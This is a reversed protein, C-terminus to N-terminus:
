EAAVLTWPQASQPRSSCVRSIAQCFGAAAIGLVSNHSSPSFFASCISLNDTALMSNQNCRILRSSPTTQEPCSLGAIAGRLSRDSSVATSGQSATRSSWALNVTLYAALIRRM